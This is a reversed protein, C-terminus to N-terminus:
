LAGSDIQTYFMLFVLCNLAKLVTRTKFSGILAQQIIIRPPPSSHYEVVWKRGDSRKLAKRLDDEQKERTLKDLFCLESTVIM